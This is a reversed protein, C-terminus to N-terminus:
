SPSDIDGTPDGDIPEAMEMPIDDGALGAGENLLAQAIGVAKAAKSRIQEARSLNANASENEVSLDHISVQLREVEKRSSSLDGELKSAKSSM